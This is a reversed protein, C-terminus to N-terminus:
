SHVVQLASAIFCAECSQLRQAAMGKHLHSSRDRIVALELIEGMEEFVPRLSPENMTRPIQVAEPYVVARRDKVSCCVPSGARVQGVFLKVSGPVVASPFVKPGMATPPTLLVAHPLIGHMVNPPTDGLAGAQLTSQPRPSLLNAADTPSYGMSGHGTLTSISATHASSPTNHPAFTDSASTQGNSAYAPATQQPLEQM